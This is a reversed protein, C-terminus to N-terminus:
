VSIKGSGSQLILSVGNETTVLQLDLSPSLNAVTVESFQGQIRAEILPYTGAALANVDLHLPGSLLVTPTVTPATLGHIGSRFVAIRPMEAPLIAGVAPLWTNRMNTPIKTGAVEDLQPSGQLDRIRAHWGTKASSGRWVMSDIIGTFGSSQGQLAYGQAHRPSLQFAGFALIPTSRLDLKGQLTLVQAGTGDWGIRCQAGDVRLTKGAPVRLDPGLLCEAQGSVVLDAQAPGTFALRGGRAEYKGSGGGAFYQGCDRVLVHAPDKHSAASLKGSTVELVGGRFTMGAVHRTFRGFKVRNGFLDVQDQANLGPIDRSSWNLRNDWRFGEGRSDPKFTCIAATRRPPVHKGYPKRFYALVDDLAQGVNPLARLHDMYEAISATPKGLVKGAYNQITTRTLEAPDLGEIGFDTKEWNYHITNNYIM